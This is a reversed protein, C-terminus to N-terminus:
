LFKRITLIIKFFFDWCDNVLSLDLSFLILPQTQQKETEDKSESCFHITNIALAHQISDPLDISSGEKEPHVRTFGIKMYYEAAVLKKDDMAQLYIVKPLDSFFLVEAALYLLLKGFGCGAM